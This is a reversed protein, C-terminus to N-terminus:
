AQNVDITHDHEPAIQRLRCVTRYIAFLMAIEHLNENLTLCGYSARVITKPERLPSNGSTSKSNCSQRMHPRAVTTHSKHTTM